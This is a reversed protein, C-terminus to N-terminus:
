DRPKVSVHRNGREYYRWLKQAWSGAYDVNIRPSRGIAGRPHDVETLFLQSGCLDTGYHRKDLGFAACLKGPGNCLAVRAADMNRRRAMLGADGWPEVARILVAHPEGVAGTVLNFAWHMGYLLFMYAHGAEGWM